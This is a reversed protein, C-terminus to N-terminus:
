QNENTRESRISPPCDCSPLALFVFFGSAEIHRHPFIGNRHLDFGGGEPPNSQLGQALFWGHCPRTPQCLTSPNPFYFRRGRGFLLPDWSKVVLHWCRKRQIRSGTDWTAARVGGFLMGRPIVIGGRISARPPANSLPTSLLAGLHM